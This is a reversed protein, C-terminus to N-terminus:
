NKHLMPLNRFHKRLRRKHAKHYSNLDNFDIRRHKGVKIFPLVGTEMLKKEEQKNKSDM